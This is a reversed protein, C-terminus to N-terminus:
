HQADMRLSVNVVNFFKAQTPLFTDSHLICVIRVRHFSSTVIGLFHDAVAM